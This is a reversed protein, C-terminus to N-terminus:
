FLPDPYHVGVLPHGPLTADFELTVVARGPANASPKPAPRIPRVTQPAGFDAEYATHYVVRGDAVTAPGIDGPAGVLKEVEARSMGTRLKPLGRAVTEPSAVVGALEEDPLAPATLSVLEPPADPMPLFQPERGPLADWWVWGVFALAVAALLAIPNRRVIELFRM